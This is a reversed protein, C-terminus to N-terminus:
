DGLTKTAGLMTGRFPGIIPADLLVIARVLEPRRAAALFTLYGGLSHGVGFVPEGRWTREIEDELQEVLYLWRDTVPYRPDTGIAEIAGVRYLPVLERLM